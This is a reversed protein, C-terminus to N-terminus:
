YFRTIEQYPSFTVAAILRFPFRFVAVCCFLKRHFRSPNTFLVCTARNESSGLAAAGSM